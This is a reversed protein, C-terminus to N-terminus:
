KDVQPQQASATFLRRARHLNEQGASSDKAASKRFWEMGAQPDAALVGPIGLMCLRGLENQAYASGGDAAATLDALRERPESQMYAFSRNAPVDYDAPNARTLRPKTFLSFKLLLTKTTGAYM